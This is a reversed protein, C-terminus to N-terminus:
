PIEVEHVDDIRYFGLKEGIKELYEVILKDVGEQLEDWAETSRKEHGSIDWSEAAEGCEEYADEELRELLSGINASPKFPYVTGVAITDGPQYGYGNM